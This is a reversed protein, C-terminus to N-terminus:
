VTECFAPHRPRLHRKLVDSSAVGGHRDYRGGSLDGVPRGGGAERDDGALDCGVSWHRDGGREVTDRLAGRRRSPAMM